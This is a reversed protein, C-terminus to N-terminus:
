VREAGGGGDVGDSDDIFCLDDVRGDFETAAGGYEQSGCFDGIDFFTWALASAEPQAASADSPTPYLVRRTVTVKVDAGFSEDAGGSM